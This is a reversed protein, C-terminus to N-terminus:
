EKKEFISGLKKFGEKFSDLSSNVTEKVEEWKSDTSDAFEEMKEVMQDRLQELEKIRGEFEQRVKGSANEAKASLKDIQDFIEDIAKKVKERYEERNM